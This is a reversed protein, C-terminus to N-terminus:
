LDFSDPGTHSTIDMSDHLVRGIVVIEGDVRYILFHRPRHVGPTETRHRSGSVHWSRIGEGIEPRPRSGPRFPDAVIDRIGAELLKRYRHRAAHGFHEASWTLIDVIDARALRSLRYRNM